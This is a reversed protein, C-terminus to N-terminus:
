LNKNLIEEAKLEHIKQQEHLDKDFKGDWNLLLKEFFQNFTENKLKRKTLEEYMPIPLNIPKYKKEGVM